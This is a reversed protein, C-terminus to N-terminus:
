EPNTSMEEAQKFEVLVAEEIHGVVSGQDLILPQIGWNTVPIKFETQGFWLGEIFNCQDRALVEKKPVMIGALNSVEATSDHDVKVGLRELANTVLIVACNELEGKWIPKSSVLAYCPVQQSKETKEVTIDLAVVAVTGLAKGGAGISQGDMKLSKTDCQSTSWQNKEKILSLLEKRVLSVQAGHDLLARTKIRNVVVPVKYTPGRMALPELQSGIVTRIWPNTDDKEEQTESANIWRM